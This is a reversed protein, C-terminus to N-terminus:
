AIILQNYLLSFVGLGSACVCVCVCVRQLLWNDPLPWFRSISLLQSWIACECVQRIACFTCLRFHYPIAILKYPIKHKKKVHRRVYIFYLEVSLRNFIHKRIRKVGASHNVCSGALTPAPSRCVSLILLYMILLHSQARVSCECMDLSSYVTM